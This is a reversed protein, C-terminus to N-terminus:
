RQLLRGVWAEYGRMLAPGIFLLEIGAVALFPGFPLANKPPVWSEEGEPAQAEAPPAEGTQAKGAAILGLGVLSGQLSSLFILPLLAQYGLFAGELALLWRDGLGLAEKKFIREGLWALITFAAWALGAGLAADIPHARPNLPSFLLGLAIGSWSLEHPIIWHDADIFAIAVLLACFVFFGAAALSPGFRLELWLALLAMLLEVIAYRASFRAGCSRCRGRLWLYSFIPINDYPRVAAGCAICHSGPSVVSEGRPLRVIVVNLFSGWLAGLVAALAPFIWAPFAVTM